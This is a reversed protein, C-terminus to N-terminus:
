ENDFDVLTLADGIVTKGDLAHLVQQAQQLLERSKCLRGNYNGGILLLVAEAMLELPEISEPRTVATLRAVSAASETNAIQSPAVANVHVGSGQLEAALGLTYRELAAKSAGYVTLAHVFKAPGIYPIQPQRAAESSINVIRGWRRERMSPLAQQILDIPAQLNLEFTAQRAALDIRSPPAYAAIGAANNILIDIPGFAAAAKALLQARAAVDTLDTSVFAARGGCDRIVKCVEQLGNLSRPSASVIVAVGHAALRQAIARGIGRSAGTVLAVRGSLDM